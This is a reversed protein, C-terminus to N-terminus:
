KRLNHGKKAKNRVNKSFFNKYLLLMFKISQAVFKENFNVWDRLTVLNVRPQSVPEHKVPNMPVEEDTAKYELQAQKKKWRLYIFVAVIALIILTLVPLVTALPLM